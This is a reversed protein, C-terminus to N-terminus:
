LIFTHDAKYYEMVYKNTYQSGSSTAMCNNYFTSHYTCCASVKCSPVSRGNHKSLVYWLMYDLRGICGRAVNCAAYAKDVFIHKVSFLHFLWYNFWKSIARHSTIFICYLTQVHLQTHFTMQQNFSLIM